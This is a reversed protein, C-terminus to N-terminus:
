VIVGVLLMRCFSVLFVIMVLLDINCEGIGGKCGVEDLFVIFSIFIGILKRSVLVWLVCGCGINIGWLLLCCYVMVVVKICSM